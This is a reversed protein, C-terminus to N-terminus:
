PSQLGGRLINHIIIIIIFAKNKCPFGRVSNEDTRPKGHLVFNKVRRLSLMAGKSLPNNCLPQYIFVNFFFLSRTLSFFVKLMRLQVCHVIKNYLSM